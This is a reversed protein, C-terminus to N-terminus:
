SDDRLNMCFWESHFSSTALMQCGEQWKLSINSERQGERHKEITTKWKKTGSPWLKISNSLQGSKRECVEGGCTLLLPNLEEGNKVIIILLIRLNLSECELCILQITVVHIYVPLHIGKTLFSVLWILMESKVDEDKFSGCLIEFSNIKATKRMIEDDSHWCILFIIM